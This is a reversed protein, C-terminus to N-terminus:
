RVVTSAVTHAWWKLSEKMDTKNGLAPVKWNMLPDEKRKEEWWEWAESLYPRAVVVSEGATLKEDGDEDDEEGDKIKNGLRQLGPIISVLSSDVRDEELFVFGLDVFGKLEEVELESLSKTLTRRKARGGMQGKKRHSFESSRLNSWKFGEEEETIVEEEYIM